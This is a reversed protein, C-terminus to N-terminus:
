FKGRHLVEGAAHSDEVAFPQTKAWGGNDFSCEKAKAFADLEPRHCSLQRGEAQM